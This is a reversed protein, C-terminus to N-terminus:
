SGRVKGPADGGSAVERACLMCDGYSYFRFGRSVAERYASLIRERGAFSCVLMLLSSRPLHFNTLLHTVVEFRFGPTIVLDTTAEVARLPAGGRAVSELTRTVTTGVAVIPRGAERAAQIRQAADASISIREEGVRHRTVDAESLPLFTGPGVHLTVEAVDLQRLQEAEFHLGATPAAISGEHRAFVTQYRDRDAETPGEPRGIYPPLPLEGRTQCASLVAGSLVEFRRARSDTADAGVYRLRLDGVQLVDGTRLGKAGRVWAAVRSGVSQHPAPACVLLEFSRGDTRVARLRAPVVRSANVVVLADRPLATVLEGAHTERTGQEEVVMVRAAARRPAPTQAIQDQPLEYDYAEPGM